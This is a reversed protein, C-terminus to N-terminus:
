PQCAVRLYRREVAERFDGCMGEAMEIAFTSCRSTLVRLTRVLLRL